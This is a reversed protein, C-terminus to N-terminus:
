RIVILMIDLWHNRRNLPHHLPKPWIYDFHYIIGAAMPRRWGLIRKPHTSFSSSLAFRGNSSPSTDLRPNHETRCQRGLKRQPLVQLITLLRCHCPPFRLMHLIQVREMRFCILALSSCRPLLCPNQPWLQLRGERTTNGQLNRPHCLTARTPKPIHAQRSQRQM